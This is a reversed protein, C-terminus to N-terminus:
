EESANNEHYFPYMVKVEEDTYNYELKAEKRFKMVEFNYKLMNQKRSIEDNKSPNIPRNDVSCENLFIM